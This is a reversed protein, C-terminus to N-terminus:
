KGVLLMVLHLLVLNLINRYTKDLATLYNFAKDEDWLQIFTALATYATGSSQPDAM